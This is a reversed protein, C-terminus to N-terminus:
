VLLRILGVLLRRGIKIEALIELRSSRSNLRLEKIAVPNGTKTDVGQTIWGFAGSGKTEFELYRGRLVYSDGPMKQFAQAADGRRPSLASLLVDRKQFYPERHHEKVTYELEYECAGARLMTAPQHMLTEEKYELKEWIGGSKFEAPVKLSGASLMLFGSGLNFRFLMHTSALSKGLIDGSKALLLDVGRNTPSKSKGKGVRWGLHPMEPARKDDFLLVFHGTHQISTFPPNETDTDPYTEYETSEEVAESSARFRRDGTREIFRSHFTDSKDVYAGKANRPARLTDTFILIPVM